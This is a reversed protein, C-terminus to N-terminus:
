FRSIFVHFLLNPTVFNYYLIDLSFGDNWVQLCFSYLRLIESGIEESKLIVAVSRVWAAILRTLVSGTSFLASWKALLVKNNGAFSGNRIFHYYTLLSGYSRPPPFSSLMLPAAESTRNPRQINTRAQRVCAPASLRSDGSRNGSSSSSASRFLSSSWNM